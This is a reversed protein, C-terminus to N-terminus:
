KEGKGNVPNAISSKLYGPVLNCASNFSAADVASLGYKRILQEVSLNQRDAETVKYTTLVNNITEMCTSIKFSDRTVTITEGARIYGAKAVAEANNGSRELVDQSEDEDLLWNNFDGDFEPQNYDNITFNVVLDPNNNQVDTQNHRGNISPTTNMFGTNNALIVPDGVFSSNGGIDLVNDTFRNEGRAEVNLDGTLKIVNGTINSNGGAKTNMNMATINNRHINNDGDTNATFNGNVATANNGQYDNGKTGNIIIDGEESTENSGRVTVTGNSSTHKISKGAKYTSNTVEVGEKGDDVIEGGAILTSDKVTVKGDSSNNTINNRATLNSNTLSTGTKGSNRINNGTMNTGTVVVSGETSENTIDGGATQKTGNGLIVDKKGKNTINGNESTQESDNITIGGETSENLIDGGAVQKTGNTIVIDKKAINKITDKTTQTSGDLTISGNEARNTIPGESNQNTNVLTINGNTSNNEIKTKASINTNTQTIDGKAKNTVGGETSTQNTGITTINGDTSENTIDGKATQKTGNGLVVDKKGKNTITGNESTQESDDIKIGGETSENLIDGGAVQKTGNTIVIDKKAINKITDKTTQTSGDLTISGNEARNTIPGESNQNTNVLTINGNTSNNEIKTKASINTNTQTIDGKAKNTVGGETSTQNTGITTINGDTSENTIDGKATQKTGNGLIVDKKGKNTITGNESTQESDDIKIGGETAENLIDGSAVQKTGNTIVIDEKAINKITDKTTQTSGDLTISGNEARNTIPGESNQNTNVLTINGNTSNNEIKTKASINTNTQTIDGKAKNNVSGETSTQNTGTTTLKGEESELNIDDKAIFQTGNGLDIDEKATIDIGGEESKVVTNDSTTFKGDTDSKFGKIATINANALNLDEKATLDVKGKYNTINANAATILGEESNVKTDGEESVLDTGNNFIVGKKGDLEFNKKINFTSNTTELTGNTTLTANAFQKVEVDKTEIGDADEGTTQVVFNGEKGEVGTFTSNTLTVKKDAKITDGLFRSVAANTVEVTSGAGTAEATFYGTDEGTFVADELTLNDTAVLKANSVQKVTTQNVVVSKAQASFNGEKTGAVTSHSLVLNEAAELDVDLDKITTSNLLVNKTESNIVLSGPNTSNGTISTGNLKIDGSGTTVNINTGKIFTDIGEVIIDGSAQYLTATDQAAISSNDFKVTKDNSTGLAVTVDGGTSNLVSKNTITVNGKITNQTFEISNKTIITSNNVTLDKDLEPLASGQAAELSSNLLTLNGQAKLKVDAQDSILHVGDLVTEDGSSLQTLTVDQKAHLTTDKIELTGASGSSSVSVSGEKSTISTGNTLKINGKTTDFSIDGNGTVATNVLTIDSQSIINPSAGSGTAEVVSDTLKVYGNTSEVTVTEGKFTSGTSEINDSMKLLANGKDAILSSNSFTLSGSTSSTLDIEVNGETAHLVSHNTISVKGATGSAQGISLSKNANITTNDIELIDKAGLILSEDFKGTSTLTSSKLKITGGKATLNLNKATLEAGEIASLSGSASLTINSNEPDTNLTTISIVVDGGDNTTGLSQILLDGTNTGDPDVTSIASDQITVDSTNSIIQLKRWGTINSNSITVDKNAQITPFGGSQGNPDTYFASINSGKIGVAGESSVVQVNHGEVITGDLINLDKKATLTTTSTEAGDRKFTVRQFTASSGTSGVTLGQGAAGQAKTLDLTSDRFSLSGKTTFNDYKGLTITSNEIDVSGTDDLSDITPTKTTNYSELNSSNIVVANATFSFDNGRYETDVIELKDTATLTLTTDGPNDATATTVFQANNATLTEASITTNGAGNKANIVGNEINANASATITLDAATTKLLGNDVVDLSKLNLTAVDSGTYIFSTDTGTVTLDADTINLKNTVTLKSSLNVLVGHTTCINVESLSTTTDQVVLSGNTQNLAKVQELTANNFVFETDTASGNLSNLTIGSSYSNGNLSSNAVIIKGVTQNINFKFDSSGTSTVTTNEVQLTYDDGTTNLNAVFSGGVKINASDKLTFEPTTGYNGQGKTVNLELNGTTTSTLNEVVINPVYYSAAPTTAIVEAKGANITSDKITVVKDSTYGTFNFIVGDGAEFTTNNILSTGSVDGAATADYGNTIMVQGGSRAKITSDSINTYGISSSLWTATTNIYSNTINFGLRSDLTLYQQATPSAGAVVTLKDIDSTYNSYLVSGRTSNITLNDIDLDAGASISLLKTTDSGTANIVSDKIFVNHYDDKSGIDIQGATSINVRELSVNYRDYNGIGIPAGKSSFITTDTVTIGNVGDGTAAGGRWINIGTDSSITSCTVTITVNPNSGQTDDTKAASADIFIENTSSHLTSNDVRIFRDTFNELFRTYLLLYYGASLSSKNFVTINGENASLTLNGLASVTSNDVIINQKAELYVNSGFKLNSDVISIDNKTAYMSLANSSSKFDTSDLIAGKFAISNAYFTARTGGSKKYKILELLSGDTLTVNWSYTTDQFYYGKNEIFYPSAKYRGTAVEWLSKDYDGHTIELHYPDLLWEGVETEGYTNVDFNNTVNIYNGSTEIFGGKAKESTAVFKGEVVAYNGWLYSSGADYEGSVDVVSGEFAITGNSLKINGAGQRDGGLYVTGGEKGKALIRSNEETGVSDGLVKITGAKGTTNSADLTGNNVAIGTKEGLVEATKQTHTQYSDAESAGFLVIEGDATITAQSASDAESVLDAYSSLSSVYGNAVKNALLYAKKTIIEGLNVAKNEATVKYSILPNDLDQIVISNGALLFVTGDRAELKGKNVVTGGVLALTGKDTVKIMGQNLVQAIAQDKDQNFIYKGDVFDKDSIDLTSAVLGAVDVSANKGFVIGAPNVIFVQGNSQLKGLIQSPNGGLVRNLVASNASQQIFQVVENSNINFNNWRIIANPDTTITTIAGNTVMKVQGQHSIIEGPAAFVSGSFTFASIGLALVLKRLNLFSWTSYTTDVENFNRGAVASTAIESVADLSQTQRNLKLRYFKNM